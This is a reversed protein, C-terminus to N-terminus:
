LWKKYKSMAEEHSILEGREAEDIGEKIENKEESSISDWWDSESSKKLSILDRIMKEDKLGALWKILRLKESQVDM